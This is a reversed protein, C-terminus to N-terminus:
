HHGPTSGKRFLCRQSMWKAENTPFSIFEVRLQTRQSSLSRRFHWKGVFKDFCFTGPQKAQHQIPNELFSVLMFVGDDTFVLFWRSCVIYIDSGRKKKQHKKNTKEQFHGPPSLAALSCVCRCCCPSRRNWRCSTDPSFFVPIPSLSFFPFIYWDGGVGRGWSLFFDWLLSIQTGLM